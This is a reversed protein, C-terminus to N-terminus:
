QGRMYKKKHKKNIMKQSNLHEINISILHSPNECAQFIANAISPVISPDEEWEDKIWHVVELGDSTSITIEEDCIDIKLPM